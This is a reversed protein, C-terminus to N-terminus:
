RAGPHPRRHRRAAAPARPRPIGNQLRAPRSRLLRCHDRPPPFDLAPFTRPRPAPSATVSASCNSSRASKFSKSPRPSSSPPSANGPIRACSGSAAAPTSPPPLHPDPRSRPWCAISISTCNSTIRSGIGIGAHRGPGPRSAMPTPQLRVWHNGIVAQWAGSLHWRFAQGSNSPPPSITIARRVADPQRRAHSILPAGPMRRYPTPPPRKGQSPPNRRDPTPSRTSSSSSAPPPPKPRLGERIFIANQGNRHNTAPGSTSSTKPRDAALCYVLPRHNVTAKAEPLYFSILGAIGYHDAIIFVPKGEALLADRAQGVSRATASGVASAACPIGNCRSLLGPSAASTTPKTSSFSSLSGSPLEPPSGPNSSRPAAPPAPGVLLPRDPRSPSSPRPSGTQISAPVCPSSSASCFCPLAWASCTSRCPVNERRKWLRGHRGAFRRLVGSQAPRNRRRRVRRPIALDAALRSRPRRTRRRAHPRDLRAANWILVPLFFLLNIALALYPGPRRLHRRAPPWLVFFLAFSVM